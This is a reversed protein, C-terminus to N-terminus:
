HAGHKLAMLRQRVRRGAIIPVFHKVSAQAHLAALEEEYLRQVLERATHTRHALAAIVAEDAPSHQRIPAAADLLNASGTNCVSIGCYGFAVRPATPISQLL